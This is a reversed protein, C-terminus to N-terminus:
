ALRLRRVLQLVWTPLPEIKEMAKTSLYTFGFGILAGAVVDLPYTVGAYVRASSFLAALLYAVVGLPRHTWWVAAAMGFGVMAPNSPFASDTPQYFLLNVAGTAFPRPRFYIGNIWALVLSSTAVSILAALVLRQRQGREVVSRGSFWAALLMLGLSAPVFYDNVVSVMLADLWPLEGALGNVIGFAWLDAKLLNDV